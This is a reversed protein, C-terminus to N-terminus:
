ENVYIGEYDTDKPFTKIMEKTNKLNSDNSLILINECDHGIVFISQNDMVKMENNLNNNSSFINKHTAWMVVEGACAITIALSFMLKFKEVNEIEIIKFKGRFNEPKFSYQICFSDFEKAIYDEVEIFLYLPFGNIKDMWNPFWNEDCEPLYLGSIDLLSQPFDRLVFPIKEFYEQISESDINVDEIYFRM